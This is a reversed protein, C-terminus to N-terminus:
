VGFLFFLPTLCYRKVKLFGQKLCCLYLFVNERKYYLVHEKFVLYSFLPTLCYRKVKLFGQKLCCLYLFINERKYYLVHEKLRIIYQM